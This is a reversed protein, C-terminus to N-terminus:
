RLFKAHRPIPVVRTKTVKFPTVVKGERTVVVSLWTETDGSRTVVKSEEYYDALQKGQKVASSEFQLTYYKSNFLFGVESLKTDDEVYFEGTENEARVLNKLSRTDPKTIATDAFKITYIPPEKGWNFFCLLPTGICFCALGTVIWVIHANPSPTPPLTESASSM